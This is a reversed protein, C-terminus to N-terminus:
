PVVGCFYELLMETLEDVITHPFERSISFTKRLLGSYGSFVHISVVVSDGELTVQPELTLQSAGDLIPDFPETCNAEVAQRHADLSTQSTIITTDNMTAHWWLYFQEGMLRLVILQFFGEASGDVQIHELYTHPSEDRTTIYTSYNEFPPEEALRAYLVPHAGLEDYWYVYDLIYGPQISLRDLVNFYDSVNFENGNKVGDPQLM